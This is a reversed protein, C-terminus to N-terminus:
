IQYTPSAALVFFPNADPETDRIVIAVHAQSGSRGRVRPMTVTLDRHEWFVEPPVHQAGVVDDDIFCIVQMHSSEAYNALTTGVQETFSVHANMTQTNGSMVLTLFLPPNEEEDGMIEQRLNRKPAPEPLPITDLPVITPTEPSYFPLPWLGLYVGRWGEYVKYGEPSLFQWEAYMRIPDPLNFPALRLDYSRALGLELEAEAVFDENAQEQLDITALLFKAGSSSVRKLLATGEAMTLHQITDRSFVLDVPPPTMEVADAVRFEWNTEKWFRVSHEEVLDSVIDTGIYRVHPFARLVIPMWTM